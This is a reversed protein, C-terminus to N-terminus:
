SRWLPSSSEFIRGNVKTSLEEHVVSAQYLNPDSYLVVLQVLETRFPSAASGLTEVKGVLDMFTTFSIPNRHHAKM